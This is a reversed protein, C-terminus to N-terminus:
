KGFLVRGSKKTGKGLIKGYEGRAGPGVAMVEGEQPREATTEPIIIGGQRPRTTAGDCRSM